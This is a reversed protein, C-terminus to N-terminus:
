ETDGTEKLQTRVPLHVIFGVGPSFQIWVAFLALRQHLLVEQPLPRELM